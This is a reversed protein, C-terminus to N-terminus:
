CEVSRVGAGGVMASNPDTDDPDVGMWTEDMGMGMAMEDVGDGLPSCGLLSSDFDDGDGASPGFISALAAESAPTSGSLTRDFEMMAMATPPSAPAGCGAGSGARPTPVWARKGQRAVRCAQLSQRRRNATPPATPPQTPRM